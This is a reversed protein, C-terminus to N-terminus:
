RRCCLGREARVHGGGGNRKLDQGEMLRSGRSRLVAKEGGPAEGPLLQRGRGCTRTDHNSTYMENQGHALVEQQAEEWGGSPGAPGWSPAQGGSDSPRVEGLSQPGILGSDSTWPSM